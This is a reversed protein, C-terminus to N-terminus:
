ATAGVNRLYEALDDARWVDGDVADHEGLCTDPSTKEFLRFGGPAGPVPGWAGTRGDRDVMRGRGPKVTTITWTRGDPTRVELEPIEIGAIALDRALAIMKDTTTMKKSTRM